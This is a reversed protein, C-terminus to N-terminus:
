KSFLSYLSLSVLPLGILVFQNEYKLKSPRHVKKKKVGTAVM